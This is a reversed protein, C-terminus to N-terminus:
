VQRARGAKYDPNLREYKRRAEAQNSAQVDEVLVRGHYNGTVEWTGQAM